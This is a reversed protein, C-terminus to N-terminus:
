FSIQHFRKTYKVTVWDNHLKSCLVVIHDVSMYFQARSIFILFINAVNLNLNTDPQYEISGCVASELSRWYVLPIKDAYNYSFVDAAGLQLKDFFAGMGKYNYM